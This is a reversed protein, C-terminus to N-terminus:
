FILPYFEFKSIDHYLIWASEITLSYFGFELVELNLIWDSGFKLLTIHLKGKIKNSVFILTFYQTYTLLLNSLGYTEITYYNWLTVGCIFLLLVLHVGFKVIHQFSRCLINFHHAYLLPLVWIKGVFFLFSFTPIPFTEIKLQLWFFLILRVFYGYTTSFPPSDWWVWRVLSSPNSTVALLPRRWVTVCTLIVPCTCIRWWLGM